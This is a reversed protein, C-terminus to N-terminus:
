SGKADRTEKGEIARMSGVINDAIFTGYGKTKAAIISFRGWIIGGLHNGLHNGIKRDLGDEDGRCDKGRGFFVLVPM